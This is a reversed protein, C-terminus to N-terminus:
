DTHRRPADLPLTIIARKLENPPILAPAGDRRLAWSEVVSFVNAYVPLESTADSVICSATLVMRGHTGM